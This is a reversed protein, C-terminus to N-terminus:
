QAAGAIPRAAVESIADDVVSTAVGSHKAAGRARRVTLAWASRSVARHYPGGGRRAIFAAAALGIELFGRIAEPSSADTHMSRRVALGRLLDPLAVVAIVGAAAAFLWWPLLSQSVRLRIAAAAAFPWLSWPWFTTRPALAVGSLRAPELRRLPEWVLVRSGAVLAPIHIAPQWFAVVPTETFWVETPRLGLRHLRGILGAEEEPPMRVARHSWLLLEPSLATASVAMVLSILLFGLIVEEWTQSFWFVPFAVLTGALIPTAPALLRRIFGEDPMLPAPVPRVSGPLPTSEIMAGIARRFLFADVLLTGFAIGTVLGRM